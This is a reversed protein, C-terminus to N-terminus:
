PLIIKITDSGAFVEGDNILQGSVTLPYDEQPPPKLTGMHYLINAWIYNAVQTADFKVILIDNAITTRIAKTILQGEYYLGITSGNIDRVDYSVDDETLNSVYATIVGGQADMRKLNFVEPVIDVEATIELATTPSASLLVGLAVMSVLGVLMLM